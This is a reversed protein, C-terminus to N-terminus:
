PAITVTASPTAGLDYAAGDTVNVILTEAIETADADPLPTVLVDVSTLGAPIVVSLTLATYDSGATATGAVTYTVTLPAATSGTRTFRFTGTDGAETATSDFATVSVLPTTTDNITVTASAPSGVEYPTTDGLTLLVTEAGETTGDALPTVVVTASAVGAAFTASLPVNTYDTGNVATGSLTFTVTLPAALLAADGSRTLTFTGTGDAGLEAALADTAAVSVLNTPVTGDSVDGPNQFKVETAELTTTATPGSGDDTVKNARVHVRDGIHLDAFTYSTNGHRIPCTSPVVVRQGNVTISDGGKATILGEIEVKKLGPATPAGPSTNGPLQPAGPTTPQKGNGNGNGNGPNAPKGPNGGKAAGTSVGDEGAEQAQSGDVVASPAAPNMSSKSDGCAATVVAGTLLLSWVIKHSYM